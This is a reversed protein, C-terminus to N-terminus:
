ISRYLNPRRYKTAQEAASRVLLLSIQSETFVAVLYELLGGCAGFNQTKKMVFRSFRLTFISFSLSIRDFFRRRRDIGCTVIMCDYAVWDKELTDDDSSAEMITKLFSTTSSDSSEELDGLCPNSQTCSKLDPATSSKLDPATSTKLDPAGGKWRALLTSCFARAFRMHNEECIKSM